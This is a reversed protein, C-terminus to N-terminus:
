FSDDIKLKNCSQMNHKLQDKLLSGTDNASVELVFFKITKTHARKTMVSLSSYGRLKIVPKCHNKPM